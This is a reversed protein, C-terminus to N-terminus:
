GERRGGRSRRVVLALAGLIPVAWLLGGKKRKASDRISCGDDSEAAAKDLAKRTDLVVPEGYDRRMQFEDCPPNKPTGLAVLWNDVPTQELPLLGLDHKLSDRVLSSELRTVWLDKPKAGLSAVALDDFGGCSLTSQIDSGDTLVEDSSQIATSSGSCEDVADANYAARAFYLDSLTSYTAGTEAM